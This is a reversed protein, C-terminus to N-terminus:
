ERLAGQAGGEQEFAEHCALTGISSEGGRDPEPDDLANATDAEALGVELIEGPLAHAPRGEM